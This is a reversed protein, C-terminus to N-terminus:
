RSNGSSATRLEILESNTLPRSGGPPLKLDSIPGIRVRVLREVDLDLAQLMRRIQRNRGERLVIRLSRDSVVGVREARMVVGEVVVGRKLKTSLGAPVRRDLAVLYEKEVGGSPHMLHQAFEGDNTLILLGESDMDLRGVPYLRVESPVLDIVTPRGHGDHATSIVGRPKNLLHYELDEAIGVPAGDVEILDGPSARMGLRAVEGNVRVRGSSVM